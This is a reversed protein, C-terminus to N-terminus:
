ADPEVPGSPPLWPRLPCRDCRPTAVKCFEAAVLDLWDALDALAAPDDPALDELLARAEDYDTNPDIWGHRALVRYTPRDLPYAPRGLAHLLIADAATPGVGKLARLSDRLSETPADALAGEGGQEVVWSALRRLAPILKSFSGASEIAQAIEAPDADALGAPELLGADALVELLADAKRDAITRTLFVRLIQRFLHDPAHSATPRGYRDLLVPAFEPYADPLSPM